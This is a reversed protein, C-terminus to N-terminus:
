GWSGRHFRDVMVLFYNYSRDGGPPLGTVLDIHITEWPRIPEQIKIMDRLRKGTTENPKQCKDCAKIDEEVDKQWMPCLISTKIEERTIDEFLNESFPMDHCEKLVLNILSM